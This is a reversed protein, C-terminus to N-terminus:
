EGLAATHLKAVLEPHDELFGESVISISDVPLEKEVVGALFAAGLRRATEQRFELSDPEGLDKALWLAAADTLNVAAEKAHRGPVAILFNAQTMGWLETGLGGGEYSVTRQAETSTM